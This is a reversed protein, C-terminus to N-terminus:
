KDRIPPASMRKLLAQAAELPTDSATEWDDEGSSYLDSEFLSRQGRQAYYAYWKMDSHNHELRLQYKKEVLEDLVKSM